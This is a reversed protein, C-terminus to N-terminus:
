LDVAVFLEILLPRVCSPVRTPTLVPEVPVAVRPPPLRTTLLVPDIWIEEPVRSTDPPAVNFRLPPDTEPEPVRSSWPVRPTLLVWLRALGKTTWPLTVPVPAKLTVPVMVVLPALKSPGPVTVTALPAVQTVGFESDTETDPPLRTLLPVAVSFASEFKYRLGFTVTVLLPVM